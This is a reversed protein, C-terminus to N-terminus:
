SLLHHEVLSLSRASYLAIPQVLDVSRRPEGARLRGFFRRSDRARKERRTGGPLLRRLASVAISRVNLNEDGSGSIDYLAGGATVASTDVARTGALAM